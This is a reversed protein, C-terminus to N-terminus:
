RGARRLAALGAFPHAAADRAAAGAPMSCHEHRPVLPLALILEDELLAHLDLAPEIALVDDDSDADLREAEAEGAVFRIRRDVALPVAMPQLCRQCPMEVEARAQLHLWTQDPGVADARAAGTASWAVAGGAAGPSADQLLRRFGALPSDGQLNGGARAFAVVDLRQPDFRRENM